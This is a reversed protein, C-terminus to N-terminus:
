DCSSARWVRATWNNTPYEHHLKVNTGYGVPHFERVIEKVREVVADFDGVIHYEIGRGAAPKQVETLYTGSKM